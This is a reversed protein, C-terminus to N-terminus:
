FLVTLFVSVSAFYIYDSSNRALIFYAIRFVLSFNQFLVNILM